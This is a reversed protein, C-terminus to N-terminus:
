KTEKLLAALRDRLATERAEAQELAGRVRALEIVLRKVREPYLATEGGRKAFVSSSRNATYIGPATEWATEGALKEAHFSSLATEGAPASESLDVLGRTADMYQLAKTIGAAAAEWQGRLV